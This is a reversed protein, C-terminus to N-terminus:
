EYAHNDMSHSIDCFSGRIQFLFFSRQMTRLVFLTSTFLPVFRILNELKRLDHKVCAASLIIFKSPSFFVFLCWFLLLTARFAFFISSHPFFEIFNLYIIFLVCLVASLHMKLFSINNIIHKWHHIELLSYIAIACLIPRLCLVTYCLLLLLAAFAFSFLFSSTSRITFARFFFFVLYSSLM